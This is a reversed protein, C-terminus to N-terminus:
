KVKMRPHIEIKGWWHFLLPFLLHIGFFMESDDSSDITIGRL